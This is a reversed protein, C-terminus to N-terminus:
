LTELLKAMLATRPVLTDIELWEDRSHAGDGVAGIGDLTPIRMASVLNGDSVGGVGSAKLEFGLGAALERAHHYLRENRENRELPPRNIAGTVRVRTGSLVPKLGQIIREIRNGEAITMMRVDIQASATEPVVNRRTGGTAVGVNVTTGLEYDTMAELKIIQQALEHVASRGKDHDSGAHAPVGTVELDFMGWGKRWIKIAGDPPVSPEPVLVCKSRRAESEFHPRSHGSGIEEDTNCFVVVRHGLPISLERLAQLAFYTQVVGGKMDFIGPGYARGQKIEFPRRLLEGAAWVTDIHCLVLIQETGQGWEARIFDGVQEQEILEVKAGGDRFLAALYGVLKDTAAKDLSPSELEVVTRLVDIIDQRRGELYSILDM